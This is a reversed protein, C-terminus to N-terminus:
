QSPGYITKPVQPSLIHPHSNPERKAEAIVQRLNLLSKTGAKSQRNKNVKNRLSTAKASVTEAYTEIHIFQYM